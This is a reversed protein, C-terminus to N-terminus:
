GDASNGNVSNTRDAPCDGSDESYADGRGAGEARCILSRLSKAQSAAFVLAKASYISRQFQEWAASARVAV